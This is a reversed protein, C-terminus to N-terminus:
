RGRKILKEIRTLSKSDGGSDSPTATLEIRLSARKTKRLAKRAAPSPPVRIPIAELGSEGHGTGFRLMKRKGKTKFSLTVKAKIQCDESCRAAPDLGDRGLRRLSAPIGTDALELELDGNYPAMTFTRSDPTPDANGAGDLARVEFTHQGWSLPQDPRDVGLQGPGSAQQDCLAFAEADFRCEFQGTGESSRFFFAPRRYEDPKQFDWQFLPGDTITTEPASGTEVEFRRDAVGSQSDVTNDGRVYLVHQGDSLSAPTYQTSCGEYPSMDISCELEGGPTSPILEFTPTSTEFECPGPAITPAGSGVTVLSAGSDPFEYFDGRGCDTDEPVLAETTGAYVREGDNSVAYGRVGQEPGPVGPSLASLLKLGNASYRYVDSEGGDQDDGTLSRESTFFARSGDDSIGTWLIPVMPANGSGTLLTSAAGSREYFEGSGSGEGANPQTEGYFFVKAGDESVDLFDSGGPFPDGGPDVGVLSINGNRWEYVDWSANTDSPDLQEITKFFVTGLDKSWGELSVASSGPVTEPGSLFQTTSGSRLYVDAADSDQDSPVLSATTEFLTSDGDASSSPWRSTGYRTIVDGSGNDAPGTSMLTTVGDRRRYLDNGNGDTDAAVLAAKSEFFVTHTDPTASVFRYSGGAPCTNGVGPGTTILTSGSADKRHLCGYPDAVIQSAHDASDAVQGPTALGLSDGDRYYDYLGPFEESSRLSESRFYIRQGSVSGLLADCNEDGFNAITRCVGNRNGGAPGFSVLKAAGHDIDYVDLMQDTDARVLQERTQVYAHTGDPSIMRLNLSNAYPDSSQTAIATGPVVGAILAVLLFAPKTGRPAGM